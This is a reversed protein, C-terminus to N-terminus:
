NEDTIDLVLKGYTRGSEQAKHAESADCLPYKQAIHLTLSGDALHALLKDLTAADPKVIFGVVDIGKSEGAAKLTPVHISPLCIARGGDRLTALAAVGADGGVLDLLLDAELSPFGDCDRYNIWNEISVYEKILNYKDESAIVSITAGTKALLQLAIHGVGGAPASIVVHDGAQINAKEILQWATEGACPLAGAHELSVNQPVHALLDAQVSVYRAYAGGDFSLACVRDGVNFRPDKSEVVIGALDFGLIAPLDDAIKEAAWGLGARTKCDIPNVGAFHNEVLVEGEACTPCLYDRHFNLKEASGFADITITPNVM